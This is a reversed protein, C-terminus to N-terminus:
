RGHDSKLPSKLGGNFGIKTTTIVIFVNCVIFLSKSDFVVTALVDHPFPLHSLALLLKLSNPCPMAHNPVVQLPKPTTTNMTYTSKMAKLKEINIPDM